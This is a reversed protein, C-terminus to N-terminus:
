CRVVVTIINGYVGRLVHELNGERGREGKDKQRDYDQHHLDSVSRVLFSSAPALFVVRGGLTARSPSAVTSDTNTNARISFVVTLLSRALLFVKVM